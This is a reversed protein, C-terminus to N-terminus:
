GHTSGQIIESVTLYPPVTTVASVQDSVAAITRICRYACVHGARYAITGSQSGLHHDGNVAAFYPGVVAPAVARREDQQM